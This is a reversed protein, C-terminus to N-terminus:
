ERVGVPLYYSMNNTIRGGVRAVIASPSGGAFFSGWLLRGCFPGRLTEVEIRPLDVLQQYIMPQEWYEDEGDQEILEGDRGFLSVGGGERGFIPKSVYPFRGKCENTFYTPLMYTAIQEQEIRDFFQGSEHLGWILAQLAKTQALFASPPNIIALKQRAILDLVHKGTPFGDEDKEDVLKELAHLRYLVDVPHLEGDVQAHMGEETVRLDALPVYSGDLGSQVLLYRTTGADEVHWDLSSFWVHRTSMGLERYRGVIRRFAAALQPELGANPNAVGYAECVQHNVHFAEVIGTPTDSNCELMKLGSETQAFDFRGIVTPCDEMVALRVAKVAQKPIGLELLLRRDAKQIVPVVRAYIQALAQTAESLQQRLSDDILHIGALAYEEDYMEDWTFVGQERIPQYIQERRKAYTRM